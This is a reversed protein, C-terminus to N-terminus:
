EVGGDLHFRSDMIWIMRAGSEPLPFDLIIREPEEVSGRARAPVPRRKVPKPTPSTTTEFLPNVIQNTALAPHSVNPPVLEAAQEMRAERRSWILALVVAVVLMTTAAAWGLARRKGAPRQIKAWALNRARLKIEETVQTEEWERKLRDM